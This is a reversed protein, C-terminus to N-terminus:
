YGDVIIYIYCYLYTYAIIAMIAMYGNSIVMSQWRWRQPKRKGFFQTWTLRLENTLTGIGLNSLRGFFVPHTSFYVNVQPSQYKYIYIDYIIYIYIYIMYWIHYVYIYIYSIYIYIHYIHYVYIIYIYIHYVYIIYIYIIYINKRSIKQFFRKSYKQFM